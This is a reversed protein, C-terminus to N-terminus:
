ANQCPQNVLSIFNHSEHGVNTLFLVKCGCLLFSQGDSRLFEEADYTRRRDMGGAVTELGWQEGTGERLSEQGGVQEASKQLPLAGTQSKDTSDRGVVEHVLGEVESLQCKMLLLVLIEAFFENFVEDVRCDLGIGNVLHACDM